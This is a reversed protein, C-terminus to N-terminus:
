SGNSFSVERNFNFAAFEIMMRSWKGTCFEIPATKQMLVGLKRGKFFLRVNALSTLLFFHMNQMGKVYPVLLKHFIPM